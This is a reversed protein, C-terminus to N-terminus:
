WSVLHPCSIWHHLDLGSPFCKWQYRLSLWHSLWGDQWTIWAQKESVCAITTCVAAWTHSFNTALKQFGVWALELTSAVTNRSASASQQVKLELCCALQQIQQLKVGLLLFGNQTWLRLDSSSISAARARVGWSRQLLFSFLLLTFARKQKM